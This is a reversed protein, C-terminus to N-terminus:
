FQKEIKTILFEWFPRAIMGECLHHKPSSQGNDDHGFFTKGAAFIGSAANTIGAKAIAAAQLVPPKDLNKFFIFFDHSGIFAVVSSALKFLGGLTSLPSSIIGILSRAASATSIIMGIAAFVRLAALAAKQDQDPNRLIGNTLDSALGSLIQFDKKFSESIVTFTTM